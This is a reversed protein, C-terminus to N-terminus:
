SIIKKPAQRHMKFGFIITFISISMSTILEPIAGFLIFVGGFIVGTIGLIMTFYGLTKQNSDLTAASIYLIAIPGLIFYTLSAIVHPIGTPEPFLGINFLAISALIMILSGVRGSHIQISKWLGISFIFGLTGCTILGSNFIIATTPTSVDPRDPFTPPATYIGALDSLWNETWSFNPSQSVALSISTFAIIPIFIGCLGAISIFDRKM